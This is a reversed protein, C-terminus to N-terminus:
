SKRKKSNKSLASGGSLSDDRDYARGVVYPLMNGQNRKKKKNHCRSLMQSKKEKISTINSGSNQIIKHHLHLVVCIEGKESALTPAEPTCLVHHHRGPELSSDM